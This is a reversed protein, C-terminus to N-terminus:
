YFSLILIGYNTIKIFKRISRLGRNASIDFFIMVNKIKLMIHFNYHQSNFIKMILSKM